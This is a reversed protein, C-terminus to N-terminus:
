LLSASNRLKVVAGTRRSVAVAVVSTHLDNSFDRPKVPLSSFYVDIIGSLHTYSTVPVPYLSIATDTYPPMCCLM